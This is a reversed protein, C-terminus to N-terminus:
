RTALPIRLVRSNQPERDLQYVAKSDHSWVRGARLVAEVGSRLGGQWRQTAPSYLMFREPNAAM